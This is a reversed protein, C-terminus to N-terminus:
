FLRYSLDLALKSHRLRRHGFVQAHQAIGTKHFGSHICLPPEISQFCFGEAFDVVPQGLEATQPRSVQIRKLPM